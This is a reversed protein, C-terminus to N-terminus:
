RVLKSLEGIQRMVAQNYLSSGRVHRTHGQPAVNNPHLFRKVPKHFNRPATTQLNTVSFIEPPSRIYRLATRDNMSKLKLSQNKAPGLYLTKYKNLRISDSM